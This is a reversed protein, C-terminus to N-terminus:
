LAILGSAVAAALRAIASYLFSFGVASFMPRAGPWSMPLILSGSDPAYMGNTLRDGSSMVLLLMWSTM